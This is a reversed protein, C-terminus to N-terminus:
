RMAISVEYQVILSDLESIAPSLWSRILYMRFFSKVSYGPKVFLLRKFKLGMKTATEICQEKVRM